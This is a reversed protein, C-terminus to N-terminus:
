DEAHDITIHGGSWVKKGTWDEAPNKWFPDQPPLGLPLFVASCLYLSGVGIYVEALEPQLGFVGPNLWGNEDFMDPASMVRRIVATLGERVSAPSLHDELRHELAAQALMQFCGFRYAISRGVVPYSGEPGILRELVSAYRAARRDIAPKMAKIEANEEHFLEALDTLMPQIVFSNYYDFHFMRGDGYAGDGKYWEDFSRMAYMVRTMDCPEGLVKLGAEVMASFLVWNSNFPIIRRSSMLARVLNAQGRLPEALAKPARVLAHALFAADVLPQEGECFNMFDPSDPDAAMEVCKIARERYEAQLAREEEDLLASDCELWPALGLMTRGFAELPAFGARAPHFELPLSQSLRGEELARLVPDAIRLLDSLWEKRTNMIIEMGLAKRSARAPFSRICNGPQSLLQKPEACVARHFIPAEARNKM